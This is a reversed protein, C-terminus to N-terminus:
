VKKGESLGHIWVMAIKTRLFEKKEGTIDRITKNNIGSKLTKGYMIRLMRIETTKLKRKDEKKTSWCDAGFLM